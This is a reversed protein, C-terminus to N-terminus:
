HPQTKEKPEYLFLDSQTLLFGVSYLFIVVLQKQIECETNELHISNQVDRKLFRIQM